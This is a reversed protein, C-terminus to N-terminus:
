FGLLSPVEAMSPFVEAGLDSLGDRDGNPALGLVRMGAEMAARVGAGSDEVVVCESAAFGMQKAAYLFLDPAPKGRAVHEMSFLRGEFQALLGEARDIREKRNLPMCELVALLNQMVSLRRFVSSEQPLYGMGKRARKYMPKRTMDKGNLEVHGHDPRLMGVSMKFVTTKGAGNPGLLGVVEGEDVEFSVDNVVKRRRYSKTLNRAAFLGM